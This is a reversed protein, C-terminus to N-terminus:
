AQPDQGDGAQADQERGQVAARQVDRQGGDYAADVGTGARGPPQQQAVQEGRGTTDQDQPAEGIHDATPRGVQRSQHQEGRRAQAATERRVDPHQEGQPDQGAEAGRGDDGVGRRQDGIGEGVPQAGESEPEVDSGHGGRLDTARDDAPHHGVLQPPARHEPHEGRETQDGGRPRCRGQTV